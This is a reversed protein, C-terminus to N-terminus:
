FDVQITWALFSCDSGTLTTEPEIRGGLLSLNVLCEPVPNFIGKCMTAPPPIPALGNQDFRFDMNDPLLKEHTPPLLRVLECTKM